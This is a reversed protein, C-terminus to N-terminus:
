RVAELQTVGHAAGLVLSVTGEAVVVDEASLRVRYDGPRAQLILQLPQGQAVRAEFPEMRRVVSRGAADDVEFRLVRLGLLKEEVAAVASSEDLGTVSISHLLGAELEILLEATTGALVDVAHRSTAIGVGDVTAFYRGPEVADSLWGDETEHLNGGWLGNEDSMLAWTQADALEPPRKAVVHVRGGDALELTGLDLVQMAAVVLGGKVLGPRLGPWVRLTWTGPPLPRSRYSGPEEGAIVGAPARESWLQVVAGSIPAGSTDVLSFRIEASAVADASVVLALPEGGPHVDDVVLVPVVSRFEPELVVLRHAGEKCNIVAFTGAADSVAEGRWGDYAMTREVQVIWDPLPAGFADTIMGTIELGRSLPLFLDDLPEGPSIILRREARGHVEHSATVTMEGTLPGSLVWHGDPGTTTETYLLDGYGVPPYERTVMVRAGPVGELPEQRLVVRGSLRAAPLLRLTVDTAEGDTVELSRARPSFGDALVTLVTEGPPVDTYSVVGDADTRARLPSVIGTTGGATETRSRTFGFREGVVVEAGPVPAEARDTVTVTVVGAERVLQLEVDVREAETEGLHTLDSPGWSGPAFAGVTHGGSVARLVWRGMEDSRTVVQGKNVTGYGSLWIDAGAFPAGDPDLVLGHVWPGTPLTLTVAATEDAVVEAAASGGRDGYATVSGPPM